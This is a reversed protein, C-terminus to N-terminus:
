SGRNKTDHDAVKGFYNELLEVRHFPHEVLLLRLELVEASFNIDMVLLINELYLFAELRLM